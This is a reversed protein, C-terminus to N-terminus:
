TNLIFLSRQVEFSRRLKRVGFPFLAVYHTFCVSYWSPMYIHSPTYVCTHVAIQIHIQIYTDTHEPTYM